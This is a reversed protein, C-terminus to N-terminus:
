NVFVFGHKTTQRRLMEAVADIGKDPVLYAPREPTIDIVEGEEAVWDFNSYEETAEMEKNYSELWSDITENHKGNKTYHFYCHVRPNKYIDRDLYLERNKRYENTFLINGLENRFYLGRYQATLAVALDVLNRFLYSNNKITFYVPKQERAYLVTDKTTYLYNVFWIQIVTDNKDRYRGFHWRLSSQSGKHETIKDSFFCYFINEIASNPEQDKLRVVINPPLTKRIEKKFNKLKFSLTYDSLNLLKADADTALSPLSEECLARFYERNTTFNFAKIPM